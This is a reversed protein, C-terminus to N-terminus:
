LQRWIHLRQRLLDLDDLYDTFRAIDGQLWALSAAVAIHRVSLADHIPACLVDLRMEDLEPADLDQAVYAIACRQDWAPMLDYAAALDAADAATVENRSLELEEDDHALVFVMTDLLRHDLGLEVLREYVVLNEAATTSRDQPTTSM